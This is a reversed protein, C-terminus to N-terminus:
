PTGVSERDLRELAAKAEQAITDGFMGKGLTELEKRAEPTGFHELLKIVRLLRQVDPSEIPRQNKRDLLREVRRRVEQSAPNALTRRLAPEAAPGIKELEQHAKDRVVFSDSNLDDILRDIRPDASTSPLFRDHLFPVTERPSAALTWLARYIRPTEESGLDAWFPELDKPTLPASPKPLGETLPAVNWVRIQHDGGGTALRQGDPSFAVSYVDETAHGQFVFPLTPLNLNWLRVTGRSGGGVSVLFRGDPSFALHYVQGSHGQLTAREEGTDADWLKVTHDGSATALRKGDPSFVASYVPGGHGKLTLLEKGTAADWVKAEGGTNRTFFDGAASVLRRGDPSFGVDYVTTAHGQLTAVEKGTAADWVKVSHDASATAFRRGDPSFAVRFVARTHATKPLSLIEKGTAADWLRVEGPQHKDDDNDQYGGCTALRTGDPSYATCYVEFRVNLTLLPKGAAGAEWVRVTKDSSASAIRKGDPSFPVTFVRDGHGPLAVTPEFKEVLNVRSRAAPSPTQARAPEPATLALLALGLRWGARRARGSERADTPTSSTANRLTALM